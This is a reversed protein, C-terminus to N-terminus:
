KKEEFRDAIVRIKRDPMGEVEMLFTVRGGKGEITVTANRDDDGERTFVAKYVSRGEQFERPWGCSDSKITGTMKREDNGPTITIQSRTIEIISKEDVTRQLIYSGNLYETKSSTFVLSKSCQAISMKSGIILLLLCITKRMIISKPM